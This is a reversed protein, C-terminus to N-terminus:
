PRFAAPIAMSRLTKASMATRSAAPKACSTSLALAKAGLGALFDYRLARCAQRTASPAYSPGCLPEPRLWEMREVPQAQQLNRPDLTNKM